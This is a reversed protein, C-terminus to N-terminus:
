MIFPQGTYSEYQEQSIETVNQFLIVANPKLKFYPITWDRMEHTDYNPRSTFYWFNGQNVFEKGEVETWHFSYFKFPM